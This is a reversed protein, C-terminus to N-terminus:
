ALAIAAVLEDHTTLGCDVAVVMVKGAPMNGHSIVIVGRGTHADYHLGRARLHAVYESLSCGRRVPVNNHVVCPRPEGVARLATLAGFIAGTQRANVETMLLRDGRAILDVGVIGRVGLDRLGNAASDIVADLARPSPLVNGFHRPGQRREDQLLQETTAIVRDAREDDGLYLVFSPSGTVGELWPEVLLEEADRFHAGLASRAEALSRVRWIGIGSFSSPLTLACTVHGQEFLSQVAVCVREVFDGDARRLVRGGPTEMGFAEFCRRAEAKHNLVEAVEPCMDMHLGLQEALRQANATALFPELRTIPLRRLRALTDHDTLLARVFGDDAAAPVFLLHDEDLTSLELQRLYTLLELAPERLQAPLVIYQNEGVLPLSRLMYEGLGDFRAAGNVETINPLHLVPARLLPLDALASPRVRDFSTLTHVRPSPSTTSLM